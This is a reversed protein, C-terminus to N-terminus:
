AKPEYNMWAVEVRASRGVQGSAYSSKEEVRWDSYLSDYLASHYGSLLIKGKAKHLQESLERHEGDTMEFAYGKQNSQRIGHVYPPDLYFLTTTSDMKSIVRSARDNEITVGQFREIVAQMSAPLNAWEKAYPKAPMWRFGNSNKPNHSHSGYGAYARFILRRAREVRDDSIEYARKFEDRAFPTLNVARVLQASADADRLISFLNVVESDLDNYVEVQARPKRLLVSAAGGFPECYIDHDPFLSILWPALLFKGGHYRLAPRKVKLLEPQEMTV